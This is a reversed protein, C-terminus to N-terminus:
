YKRRHGFVIGPNGNILQYMEWFFADEENEVIKRRRFDISDKTLLNLTESKEHYENTMRDHGEPVWYKRYFYLRNTECYYVERENAEVFNDIVSCM